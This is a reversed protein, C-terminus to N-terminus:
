LHGSLSWPVNRRAPITFDSVTTLVNGLHNTLEYRKRGTAFDSSSEEEPEPFLLKNSRLVGLRSSGYLVLENLTLTESTEVYTAMQNGQADLVYWTTSVHEEADTVKKGIRNGMADYYFDIITGDAKEIQKVKGAVNWRIDIEEAIDKILNGSADYVYNTQDEEPDYNLPDAQNDIDVAYNSTAVEDLVIRLQNTGTKYYYSMDDM